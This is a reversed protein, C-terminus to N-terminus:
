KRDQAHINMSFPNQPRKQPRLDRTSVEFRVPNTLNPPTLPLPYM